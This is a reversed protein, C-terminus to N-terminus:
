PNSDRSVLLFMFGLVGPRAQTQSAHMDLPQVAETTMYCFLLILEYLCLSNCSKNHKWAQGQSHLPICPSAHEHSKPAGVVSTSLAVPKGHSEAARYVADLANRGSGTTAEDTGAPRM